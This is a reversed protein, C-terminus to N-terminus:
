SLRPSIAAVAGTVMLTSAGALRNNEVAGALAAGPDIINAAVGGGVRIVGDGFHIEVLASYKETGLCRGRIGILEIPGVHNRAAVGERGLGCILKPAVVVEIGTETKTALPM